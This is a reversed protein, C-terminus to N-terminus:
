DVNVGLWQREKRGAPARSVAVLFDRSSPPPGKNNRGGSRGQAEESSRERRSLVQCPSGVGRRAKWIGWKQGLWEKRDVALGVRQEAVGLPLIDKWM